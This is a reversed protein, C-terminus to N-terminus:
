ALLTPPQEVRCWRSPPLPFRCCLISCLVRLYHGFNSFNTMLNSTTRSVFTMITAMTPMSTTTTTAYNAPLPTWWSVENGDAEAGNPCNMPDPGWCGIIMDGYGHDMTLGTVVCSSKKLVLTQPAGRALAASRYGRKHAEEDHMLIVWWTDQGNPNVYASLHAGTPGPDVSDTKVIPQAYAIRVTPLLVLLPVLMLLLVVCIRTKAYFSRQSFLGRHYLM